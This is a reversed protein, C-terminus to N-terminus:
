GAIEEYFAVTELACRRWSFGAAQAIGKEAMEARVGTNGMAYRMAEALGVMDTPAILLAADGAVEPLSSVNSTIVPTGCAMAELVPLGFGEYQSPFVFLDALSFLAPLDGDPIFGTFVVRDELSLAQVQAFTEEYMWGKKGGIVLKVGALDAQHFARILVPLNKRPEITGVYLIFRAPLQYRARIAALLNEDRVPRFRSHIGPYIVASPTTLPGYQAEMDRQTSVSITIIGSARRLFIPMMLRLFTRNLRAHTQAHSLFTLDGLTFVTPTQPLCPLLHDTAHFLEVPRAASTFLKEQSHRLLHALLVDLRWPKDALRIPIQDMEDFPSVVQATAAANYFASFSHESELALLAATLEHALRGLGARGHVAPSLDICVNM